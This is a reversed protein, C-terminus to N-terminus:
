FRLVCQGAAESQRSAALQSRCPELATDEEPEGHISHSTSPLICQEFAEYLIDKPKTTDRDQNKVNEASCLRAFLIIRPFM